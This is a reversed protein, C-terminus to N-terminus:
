NPTRSAGEISRTAWRWRDLVLEVYSMPPSVSGAGRYQVRLPWRSGTEGADQAASVHCLVYSYSRYRREHAGCLVARAEM